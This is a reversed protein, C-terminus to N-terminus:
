EVKFGHKTTIIIVGNEAGYKEVMEGKKHVSIEKIEDAPVEKLLDFSIKEGDVIVVPKVDKDGLTNAGRIKVTTKEAVKPIKTKVLIVNNQTDYQKLIEPDKVVNISEIKDPDLLDLIAADYKKGDIYVDAAISDKVEVRISQPNVEITHAHSVRSMLICCLALLYVNKMIDTKINIVLKSCWFCREPCLM